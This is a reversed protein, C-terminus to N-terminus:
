PAAHVVATLLLPDTVIIGDAAIEIAVTRDGTSTSRRSTPIELTSTTTLSDAGVPINLEAGSLPAPAGDPLEPSQAREEVWVPLLDAVTLEAGAAPEVAVAVGYWGYRTPASLRLTWILPRGQLVEIAPAAVTLTPPPVDSRVDAGGVYGSVQADHAAFVMVSVRDPEASFVSSGLARITFSVTRTGPAITIESVGDALARVPVSSRGPGRGLGQVALWLRAPRVVDGTVTVTVPVDHVQDDAPLTAATATVSFRPVSTPDLSSAAAGHRSGFADLLYVHGSSSVARLRLASVSTLDIGRFGALPVRVTQAWVRRSSASGPLPRLTVTVTSTVRHGRSDALGVRFKSVARGPDAIVRLDLFRSRSLDRPTALAAAMVSRPSRWSASVAYTTPVSGPLWHPSSSGDALCGPSGDVTFGACVSASARGSAVVRLGRPDTILARRNGGLAETLVVASGASVARTPSGDLLRAASTSSRLYTAAAAAVYTAGVARQQSARLRGPAASGCAADATDAWDDEAPATAVGPTWQSNFYNHNAGLVMASTLLSRDGTALERAQDVYQQGQLDSVDGDCAPLLVTTPVGAAVQRGFDTPAILVQGRIRFPDAATADIAARVVGEGGRSHGVLMVHRMDLRGRLAAAVPPGTGTSNWAVLLDLHHRVLISRANAGSDALAGDQANIANASISVTVYGRSALLRQTAVYGALSPIPRFGNVCPWDISTESGLYCTSHRGHLFLVVPRRGPAGVPAVVTGVVELPVPIGDVDLGPLSYRYSATAFRGPKGPDPTVLTSPQAPVRPTAARRPASGAIRAAPPRGARGADTLRVGALLVSLRAPTVGRLGAVFLRLRGSPDSTPAGLLAGDLAFEPRADGTLRVGRSDWLLSTGSADTAVTWRGATALHPPVAQAQVSGYQAQAQAPSSAVTATSALALTLAITLPRALVRRALVRRARVRRALVGDGRATM